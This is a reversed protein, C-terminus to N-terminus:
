ETQPRVQNPVKIPSMECSTNLNSDQLVELLYQNGPLNGPGINLSAAVKMALVRMIMNYFNLNEM